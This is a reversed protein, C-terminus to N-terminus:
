KRQLLIMCSYAKTDKSYGVFICKHAKNEIKNRLEDPVHAYAVCGFFNLHSVCHNMCTWAEQTVKNKVSKTLCQNMIYVTTTVTEVWYENSLHKAEMM